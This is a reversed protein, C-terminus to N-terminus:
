PVPRQRAPRWRPGGDEHWRVFSGARGCRCCCPAPTAAPDGSESVPDPPADTRGEPASGTGGPASPPLAAPSLIGYSTPTPSTQHTVRWRCRARYARQRDRHDLRGEPSQQHRRGAARVSRARGERRCPLSCYAHGRDCAPCLFFLQRCLRCARMLLIAV